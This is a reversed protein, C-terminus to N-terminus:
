LSKRKAYFNQLKAKKKQYEASLKKSDLVAAEDKSMGNFPTMEYSNSAEKLEDSAEQTKKQQPEIDERMYSLPKYWLLRLDMRDYYRSSDKYQTVIRDLDAYLSKLVIEMREAPAKLVLDMIGFELDHVSPFSNIFAVLTLADEYAIGRGSIVGSYIKCVSSLEPIFQSIEKM